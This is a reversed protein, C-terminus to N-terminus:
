SILLIVINITILITNILKKIIEVRDISIFQRLSTIQM